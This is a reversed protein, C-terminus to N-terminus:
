SLSVISQEKFAQILRMHMYMDIWRNNANNNNNDNNNNNNGNNM